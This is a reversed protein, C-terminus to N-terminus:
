VSILFEGLFVRERGREGPRDSVVVSIWWLRLVM